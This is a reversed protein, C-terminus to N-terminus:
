IEKVYTKETLTYGKRTYLPELSELTDIDVMTVFSCGSDKAWKEYSALLKYAARGDRHEPEVFWALETAVRDKSFLPSAIGGVLMGVLDGGDELLFLCFDPNEIALEFNELLKAVDLNFPFKSEKLFAKALLAFDLSDSSRAKRVQTL